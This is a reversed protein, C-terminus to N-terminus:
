EVYASPHELFSGRGDTHADTRGYTRGDTRFRTGAVGRVAKTQNIQKRLIHLHAVQKQNKNKAMKPPPIANATESRTGAVGAVDKISSIQFQASHKTM